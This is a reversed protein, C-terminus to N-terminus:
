ECTYYGKAVEIMKKCSACWIHHGTLVMNRYKPTVRHKLVHGSKCCILQKPEQVSLRNEYDTIIQRLKDNEDIADQCEKM